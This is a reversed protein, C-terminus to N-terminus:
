GSGTRERNKSRIIACEGCRWGAERALLQRRYQGIMRKARLHKRRLNREARRNVRKGRLCYGDVGPRRRRDAIRTRGRRSDNCGIYSCAVADNMHDVLDEDGGQLGADDEIVPLTDQGSVGAAPAFLM